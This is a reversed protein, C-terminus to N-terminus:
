ARLGLGRLGKAIQVTARGRQRAVKPRVPSARVTVTPRHEDSVESPKAALAPPAAHTAPRATRRRAARRGATAMRRRSVPRSCQAGRGAVVRKQEEVEDIWGYECESQHEHEPARREPCAPMAAVPGRAQNEGPQRSQHDAVPDQSRWGGAQCAARDLRASTRGRSTPSAPPSSQRRPRSTRRRAHRIRDAPAM